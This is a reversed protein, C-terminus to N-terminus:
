PLIETEDWSFLRGSKPPTLNDIVNVLQQAATEPTFCNKTTNKIFRESFKTKVTGPHLGVVVSHKNKRRLEHSATKIFMNLAAKSMRYAYWGGLRNDSISGIRASLVAFTPTPANSLLTFCHKFILTPIVTNIRFNELLESETIQEVSKEPNKSIASLVGTAIVILDLSGYQQFFGESFIKIKDSDAYDLVHLIVRPPLTESFLPERSIGHINTLPNKEALERILAAGITGSAGFVAINQLQMSRIETMRHQAQSNLTVRSM